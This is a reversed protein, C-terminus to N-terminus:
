TPWFLQLLGLIALYRGIKAIAVILLFSWLPERLIGAMATLPDGIIPVWSALLSWRGFHNYIGQLKELQSPKVPFWRRDQFHLAYRGLAWNLTSGSINGLSAVALLAVVPYNGTAALALLAAESQAPVLTAALLAVFFLGLYATM